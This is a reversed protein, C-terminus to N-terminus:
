FTKKLLTHISVDSGKTADWRAVFALRINELILLKLNECKKISKKIYRRNIFHIYSDNNSQFTYPSEFVYKISSLRM